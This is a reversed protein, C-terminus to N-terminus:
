ASWEGADDGRDVFVYRVFDETYEERLLFRLLLSRAAPGGMDAPLEADLFWNATMLTIASKGEADDAIDRFTWPPTAPDLWVAYDDTGLLEGDADSIARLLSPLTLGTDVWECSGPDPMCGAEELYKRRSELRRDGGAMLDFRESDFACMRMLRRLVRIDPFMRAIRELAARVCCALTDLSDKNM